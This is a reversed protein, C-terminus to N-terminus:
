SRDPSERRCSMSGARELNSRVSEGYPAGLGGIPELDIARFTPYSNWEHFGVRTGVVLGKRQQPDVEKLNFPMLRGDDSEILGFLGATDFDSIIGTLLM